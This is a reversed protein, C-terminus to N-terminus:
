SYLDKYNDSVNRESSFYYPAHRLQNTLLSACICAIIIESLHLIYSYSWNMDNQTLSEWIFHLIIDQSKCVQKSIRCKIFLWKILFWCISLFISARKNKTQKKALKKKLNRTLDSSNFQRCRHVLMISTLFQYM